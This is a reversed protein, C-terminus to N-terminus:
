AAAAAQEMPPLEALNLRTGRYWAITERLGDIVSSKPAYGLDERAARIDAVSDRIDGAKAPLYEPWASCDTLRILELLLRNLSMQEGCGVNYVKGAAVPATMAAMNAAVVNAVYAFDRSQEGDGYIVPRGSDLLAAVFRPIVAAYASQPDQRPGFVNFYRLAVTELDYLEHFIRCYDEGVLKSLGYPSIPAPPLSEVLPPQARDGYVASSSAFVFRRVGADRAAVMLNLTGTVNVDNCLYPDSISLHVSALAAHHIVVHAGAAAKRVAEPDRIDGRILEIDRMAGALNEERGTSFNDLVRVREGRRLLEDVIHSAIFGAGGTVLTLSRM